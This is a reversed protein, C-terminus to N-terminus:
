QEEQEEVGLALGTGLYHESPLERTDSYSITELVFRVAQFAESALKGVLCELKSELEEELANNL